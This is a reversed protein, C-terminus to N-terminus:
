LEHDALLTHVLHHFRTHDAVTAQIAPVQRTIAKVIAKLKFIHESALVLELRSIWLDGM